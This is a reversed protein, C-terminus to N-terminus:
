IFHRAMDKVPKGHVRMAIDHWPMRPKPEEVNEKGDESKVTTTKRHVL